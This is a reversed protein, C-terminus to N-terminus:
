LVICGNCWFDTTASVDVQTTNTTDSLPSSFADYGDTAKSVAQLSTNGGAFRAAVLM